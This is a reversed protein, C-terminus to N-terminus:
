TTIGAPRSPEPARGRGAGATGRPAPRARTSVGPFRQAAEGCRLIAEDDENWPGTRSGGVAGVARGAGSRDGAGARGM